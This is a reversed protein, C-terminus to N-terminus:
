KKQTESKKHKTPVTEFAELKEFRNNLVLVEVRRNGGRFWESRGAIVPRFHSYGAISIRRPDMGLRSIWYRGVWAARAASLEWDSPFDGSVEEPDSHGEIRILRPTKLLVRGIRELLPRLDQPVEVEGEPFFDKVALRVVLGRSDYLLQMKDSLESVGLELSISEELLEKM